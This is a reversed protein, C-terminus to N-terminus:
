RFICAPMDNTLAFATMAAKAPQSREIIRSAEAEDEAALADAYDHGLSTWRDWARLWGDVAADDLAALPLLRLDSVMDEWGAALRHYREVEAAGRLPRRNPEVVAEATEACRQNAALVFSRDSIREAPTAPERGLAVM